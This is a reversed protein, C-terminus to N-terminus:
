LRDFFYFVRFTLSPSQNNLAEGLGPDHFLGANGILTLAREEFSHTKNKHFRQFANEFPFVFIFYGSRFHLAKNIQLEGLGPDHFLGANGILTLAREEFSHTKNKHFRQFANEFPFVFIFYGSRFHLAKNIQLEGLGPDHFIGTVDM